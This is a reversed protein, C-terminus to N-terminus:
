AFTLYYTNLLETLFSIPSNRVRTTKSNVTSFKTQRSRTNVNKQKPVFWNSFKEKKECKLAFKTCIQNRRQALTHLNLTKLAKRYSNYEGQLIIKCACKQVKEILASCKSSLSPQWVPISFELAPRIHKTYVDVLNGNSAGMTKLRRLIWLRKFAKGTIEETNSNWKLDSTLTIGLLKVKEVYELVTDGLKISPEFDMKKCPNFLMVKTKQNNIKM